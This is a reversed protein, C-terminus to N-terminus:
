NTVGLLIKTEEIIDMFELETLVRIFEEWTVLSQDTTLWESLVMELRNNDTYSGNMRLSERTNLPVGLQGGIESWRSSKNKLLKYLQGLRPKGSSIANDIIYLHM